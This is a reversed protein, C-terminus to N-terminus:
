WVPYADIFTRAGSGTLPAEWFLQLSDAWYELRQDKLGGTEYFTKSFREMLPDWGFLGCLVISAILIIVFALMRGHLKKDAVLLVFLVFSSGLLSLTGGRSLSFFVSVMGLISILGFLLGQSLQSDTLLDTLRDRFNGYAVSPFAWLTSIVLLPFIMGILSAYHNGNVFSAFHHSTRQPWDAFLWFVKDGPIFFQVLGLFAFVGIFWTVYNLLRRLYSFNVFLNTAVLYFGAYGAYRFFEHLTAAPNLSLPRWAGPSLIWFGQELYSSYGSSILRLVAPPLPLTQFLLWGCFLSLPLMGPPLRLDKGSRILLLPLFLGTFSLVFRAYTGTGGMWLPMLMLLFIVWYQVFLERKSVRGLSEPM